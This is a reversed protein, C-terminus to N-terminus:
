RRLWLYSVSYQRAGRSFLYPMSVREPQSATGGYAQIIAQMGAPPESATEEDGAGWMILVPGPPVSASDTQWTDPRAVAAEPFQLRMNGALHQSDTVITHPTAETRILDAIDAMPQNIRSYSGTFSALSTKAPVSLLTIAMIVLLVPVLRPLAGATKTGAREFKLLLYLPLVLLYPNLWRETIKATGTVMLVLVVGALSFLMIRGLLRTWEDGARLAPRVHGRYAVAFIAATLAGFALCAVVLSLLAKVMRGLGSPGGSASMKSLTGTSALEVHGILWIAHPVIFAAAVGISVLLRPDLLRARWRRDVAVALLAAAPLLVFNYKSICGIGVAIGVILFSPWDSRVLARLLGYLFLSTAMLVAVTHTLDQQPMYSLQPLTLLSLMALPAFGPRADIERAAMGYFVYCLLLMFFKPLALTALSIGGVAVVASQVWNYFPPQPGYGLLWFQSFFSQEAEDLTLSNPLVLRVIVSVFFYGALLLVAPRLGRSLMMAM